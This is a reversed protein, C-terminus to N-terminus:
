VGGCLLKPPTKTDARTLHLDKDLYRTHEHRELYRESAERIARYQSRNLRIEKGTEDSGLIVLHAHDHDTNKHDTSYFELGRGKTNELETMVFRTYANMDVDDIGPSLVIRHIVIKNEDLQKIRERVEAGSIGDRDASIFTRRRGEAQDRDAGSRLELYRIHSVAHKIGGKGRIYNGKAISRM